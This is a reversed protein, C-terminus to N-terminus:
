YPNNHNNQSLIDSCYEMGPAKAKFYNFYFSYTILIFVMGEICVVAERSLKLPFNCLHKFNRYCLM